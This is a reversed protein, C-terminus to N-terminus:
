EAALALLAFSTALDSMFLRPFPEGHKGGNERDYNLSHARWAKWQQGAIQVDRQNAALWALGKKVAPDDAPLKAQRLTYVIMGTALGDSNELLSADLTEPPHAEAPKSWKWPGLTQMSWGGDDRQRSRLEAILRDRDASALLGSLRTSALLVWTRNFLTQSGYGAKLYGRLREIGQPLSDSVATGVAFAALTAGQYAGGTTEFPELGFDLWDWAGDPRQSAWLEAFALRTPEGMTGATALILANLVAETGRSEIKKAESFDYFPQHSGYTEVRQIVEGVLRRAQPTAPRSLAYPIATHCSVCRTQGDGTRLKKASSFWTDM